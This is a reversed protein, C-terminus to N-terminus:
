RRPNPLSQSRVNLVSPVLGLTVSSLGMLIASGLLITDYASLTLTGLQWEPSLVGLRLTQGVLLNSAAVGAWTLTTYVGTSLSKDEPPILALMESSAAIGFAANVMGFTITMLGALWVPDLPLLGRICFGTLAVAFLGHTVLFVRHTGFRDVMKGGVFFGAISGIALLNGMVVIRSDSFGLEQKELLGFLTVSAGTFLGLLFLYCCFSMYGPIKIVRGLSRFFGDGKARQPELEPIKTYLCRRVVLLLGAIVLVLQYLSISERWKLLGAVVLSFILGVTQWSVRLKGFFRGRVEAPIIPSLLAFWSATNAAIGVSFVLIGLWLAGSSWPLSGAAPLLLFGIASLTAGFAGIRKKGFCDAAYALPLTLLMGILPQMSFLLLIGHPPIGLKLAYTLVFGNQLLVMSVTGVCQTYIILRLRKQIKPDLNM